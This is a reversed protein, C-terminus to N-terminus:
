VKEGTAKEIRAAHMDAKSTLDAWRRVEVSHAARLEVTRKLAAGAGDAGEADLTAKPDDWYLSPQSGPPPTHSIWALAFLLQWSVFPPQHTVSPGPTYPLASRQVKPALTSTYAKM